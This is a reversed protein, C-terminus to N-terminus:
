CAGFRPRWHISWMVVAKSKIRPYCRLARIWFGLTRRWKPLTNKKKGYYAQAAKMAETIAVDIRQGDLLRVAVLTYIGCAMKSRPHGHILASIDHVLEMDADDLAM